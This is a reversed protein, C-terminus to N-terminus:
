AVESNRGDTYRWGAPEQEFGALSDSADVKEIELEAMTATFGGYASEVLQERSMAATDEQGLAGVM